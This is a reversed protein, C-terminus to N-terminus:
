LNIKCKKQSMKISNYIYKYKIITLINTHYRTFARDKIM